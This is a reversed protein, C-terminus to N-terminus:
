KCKTDKSQRIVLRWQSSEEVSKAATLNVGTFLLPRIVTGQPVDVLSVGKVGNNLIKLLLEQSITDFAKVLDLFVTIGKM